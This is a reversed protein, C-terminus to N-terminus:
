TGEDRGVSDLAEQFIERVRDRGSEAAQALTDRGSVTVSQKLVHTVRPKKRKGKGPIKATTMLVRNGRRSEHIWGGGSFVERPSLRQKGGRDLNDGIPIYLAKAKVPRITKTEDTLLWARRM